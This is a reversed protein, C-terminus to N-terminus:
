KGFSITATHLTTNYHCVAERNRTANFGNKMTGTIVYNYNDGKKYTIVRDIEAGKYQAANKYAVRSKVEGKFALKKEPSAKPLSFSNWGWVVLGVIVCAMVVSATGGVQMKVCFPCLNKHKADYEKECHVCKITKM